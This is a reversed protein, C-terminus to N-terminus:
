SILMNNLGACVSEKHMSVHTHCMPIVLRATLKCPGKPQNFTCASHCDTHACRFMLTDQKPGYTSALTYTTPAHAVDPWPDSVMELRYGFLTRCPVRSLM